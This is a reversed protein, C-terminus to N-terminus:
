ILEFLIPCYSSNEKVRKLQDGVEEESDSVWYEEKSDKNEKGDDNRLIVVTSDLCNTLPIVFDDDEKVTIKNDKSSYYRSSPSLIAEICEQTSRLSKVKELTSTVRLSEKM